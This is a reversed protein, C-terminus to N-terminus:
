PGARSKELGRKRGSVWNGKTGSGANGDSSSTRTAAKADLSSVDSRVTPEDEKDYETEIPSGGRPDVGIPGLANSGVEIPDVGREAGSSDAGNAALGTAGFGKPGFGILGFGMPGFATLEAGPSAGVVSDPIVRPTSGPEDPEGITDPPVAIAV